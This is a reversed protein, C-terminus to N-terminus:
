GGFLRKADKFIQIADELASAAKYSAILEPMIPTLAGSIAVSLETEAISDTIEDSARQLVADQLREVERQWVNSFQDSTFQELDTLTSQAFHLYANGVSEAVQMFNDQSADFSGRFASDADPIRADGIERLTDNFSQLIDLYAPQRTDQTDGRFAELQQALADLSTKFGQEFQDVGARFEDYVSVDADRLRQDEAIAQQVHEQVQAAGQAWQDSRSHLEDSAPVIPIEAAAFGDPIVQDKLTQVSSLHNAFGEDAHSIADTIPDVGTMSEDIGVLEVSQLAQFVDLGELHSNRLQNFRSDINAQLEMYSM